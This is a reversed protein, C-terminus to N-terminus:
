LECDSSDEDSSCIFHNRPQKYFMGSKITCEKSSYGQLNKSLEDVLIIYRWDEYQAATLAQSFQEKSVKEFVFERMGKDTVAAKSHSKTQTHQYGPYRDKGFKRKKILSYGAISAATSVDYIFGQYFSNKDNMPQALTIHIRDKPDQIKSCQKFFESIIRPLTQDQFSSGDHPCNWHIRSFNKERFKPHDSLTEANVGLIVTVGRRRLNEIRNIISLCDGCSTMSASQSSGSPSAVQHVYSNIFDCGICHIRSVLDTAIISHALSNSADHGVKEDHKQVFAETFSFNGEGVFLRTKHNGSCTPTMSYIRKDTKFFHNYTNARNGDHLFTILTDTKEASQRSLNAFVFFCIAM